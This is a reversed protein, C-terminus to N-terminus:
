TSIKEINVKGRINKYIIDIIKNAKKISSLDKKVDHELESGGNVDRNLLRKLIINEDTDIYIIKDGWFMKYKLLLRKIENNSINSNYALAWIVNLIGEDLYYIGKKKKIKKIISIYSMLYLKMKVKTKYDRFNINNIDNNCEIFKKYNFLFLNLSLAIKKFNRIIRSKSYVYKQLTNTYTKLNIEAYTTKGCAPMGFLEIIM